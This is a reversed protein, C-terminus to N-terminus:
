SCTGRRMQEDRGKQGAESKKSPELRSSAEQLLGAANREESVQKEGISSDQVSAPSKPSCRTSVSNYANEFQIIDRAFAELITGREIKDLFEENM